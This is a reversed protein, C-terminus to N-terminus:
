NKLVRTLTTKIGADYTATGNEWSQITSIHMNAEKSLKEQTWGKALRLKSIEKALDIGVKRVRFETTDKAKDATNLVSREVTSKETATRHDTNRSNKSKAAGPLFVTGEPLPTETYEFKKAKKRKKEVVKTFGDDDTPIPSTQTNSEPVTDKFFYKRREGVVTTM